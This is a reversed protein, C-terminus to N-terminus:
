KNITISESPTVGYQQKFATYFHSLNEFGLELYIDSPRRKKQHILYYAESLRKHKLWKAPPANFTKAFDRKFGALSRGTLKAFNEIPANYKFNKLMFAELDIKPLSTLILFFIRFNLICIYCYSWSKM